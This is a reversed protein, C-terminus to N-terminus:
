RLSRWNCREIEFEPNGSTLERRTARNKATRLMVGLLTGIESYNRRLKEESYSEPLTRTQEFTENLMLFLSVATADTQSIQPLPGLKPFLTEWECTFVRRRQFGFMWRTRVSTLPTVFRWFTQVEQKFAPM